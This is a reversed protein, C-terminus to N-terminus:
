QYRMWTKIEEREEGMKVLMEPAWGNANPRHTRLHKPPVLLWDAHILSADTITSVDALPSPQVNPGLLFTHNTAKM